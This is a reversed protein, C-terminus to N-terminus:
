CVCMGIDTALQNLDSDDSSELAKLFGVYKEAQKLCLSKLLIHDLFHSMRKSELSISEIKIKQELTIAENSFLSDLMSSINVKTLRGYHARIKKYVVSCDIEVCIHTHMYVNSFKLSHMFSPLSM